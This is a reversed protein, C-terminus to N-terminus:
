YNLLQKLYTSYIHMADQKLLFFWGYNFIEMPDQVHWQEILYKARKDSQIVSCINKYNVQQMYIITNKAAVLKLYPLYNGKQYEACLFSSLQRQHQFHRHYKTYTDSGVGAVYQDERRTYPLYAYTQVIRPDIGKKNEKTESMEREEKLEKTKNTDKKVKKETEKEKNVIQPVEDKRKKLTLKSKITSQQASLKPFNDESLDIWENLIPLPPRRRQDSYDKQTELIGTDEQLMNETNSTHTPHSRLLWVKVKITKFQSM